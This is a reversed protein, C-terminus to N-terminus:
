ASSPMRSLTADRPSPSTYLLCVDDDRRFGMTWNVLGNVGDCEECKGWWASERNYLIWRQNVLRPEDAALKAMDKAWSPCRHHFILADSECYRSRNYTLTCRHQGCDFEGMRIMWGSAPLTYFGTWFLITKVIGNNVNSSEAFNEVEGSANDGGIHSDNDQSSHPVLSPPDHGACIIVNSESDSISIAGSIPRPPRRQLSDGNLYGSTSNSDPFHRLSFYNSEYVLVLITIMVFNVLFLVRFSVKAKVVGVRSAM